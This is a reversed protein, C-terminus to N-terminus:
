YDARQILWLEDFGLGSLSDINAVQVPESIALGNTAKEFAEVDALLFVRCVEGVLDADLAMFQTPDQNEEGLAIRFTHIKVIGYEPKLAEKLAALSEDSYYAPSVIGVDCDAKEIRSNQIGLYAGILLVAAAIIIVTKYYYWINDLKEKM